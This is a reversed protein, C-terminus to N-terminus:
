PDTSALHLLKQMVATLADVRALLKGSFENFEDYILKEKYDLRDYLEKKM